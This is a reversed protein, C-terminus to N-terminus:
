RAPPPAAPVRACARRRVRVQMERLLVGDTMFKLRTRGARVSSADHRVQYAVVGKGKGAGAGAGAGVGSGPGEGLEAAVRAAMATAAVRRPQTVGVMGPYGLYIPPPPQPPLAGHGQGQAAADAQTAPAPSAVVVKALPTGYGAELLFQPVQTTKGSGTEGCLVICDSGALAEMVEQEAGCVPLLARAEAAAAPRALPAALNGFASFAALAAGREMRLMTAGDQSWLQLRLDDAAAAARQAREEASLLAFAGGGGAAEAGAGASSSFPVLGARRMAEEAQQASTAGAGPLYSAPDWWERTATASRAKTADDGDDDDDNDDDEDGEDDEDYDDGGGDEDSSDAEVGDGADARRARREQRQPRQRERAPEPPPPASADGSAYDAGSGGLVRPLLSAATLGQEALALNRARLVALAALSRDAPLSAALGQQGSAAAV